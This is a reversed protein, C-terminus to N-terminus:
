SMCRPPTPSGPTGGMAGASIFAIKAALPLRIRERGSPPCNALTQCWIRSLAECAGTMGPLGFTQGPIWSDCVGASAMWPNGIPRNAATPFSM